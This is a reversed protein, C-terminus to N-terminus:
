TKMSDIARMWAIGQLFRQAAALPSSHFFVVHCLQLPFPLLFILLAVNFLISSSLSLKQNSNKCCNNSEIRTKYRSFPCKKLQHSKWYWLFFSEQWSWGHEPFHHCFLQTWVCYFNLWTAKSEVAVLNFFESFCCVLSPRNPSKKKRVVLQRSRKWWDKTYATCKFLVFRCCCCSFM